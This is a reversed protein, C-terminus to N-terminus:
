RVASLSFSFIQGQDGGSPFLLNRFFPDIAAPRIRDSEGGGSESATETFDDCSLFQNSQPVVRWVGDGSQKLRCVEHFSYRDCVHLASDDAAVILHWGHESVAVSTVLNSIWAREPACLPLRDLTPLVFSWRPEHQDWIAFFRRCWGVHSPNHIVTEQRGPSGDGDKRAPLARENVTREIAAIAAPGAILILDREEAIHDGNEDIEDDVFGDPGGGDGRSENTPLELGYGILITQGAHSLDVAEVCINSECDPNPESPVVYNTLGDGIMDPTGVIDPRCYDCVHSGIVWVGTGSEANSWEGNLLVNQIALLPKAAPLSLATTECVCFDNESQAQWLRQVSSAVACDNSNAGGGGALIPRDPSQSWIAIFSEVAPDTSCAAFGVPVDTQTEIIARLFAASVICLVMIRLFNSKM